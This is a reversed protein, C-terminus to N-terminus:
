PPLLINIKHTSGTIIIKKSIPYKNKDISKVTPPYSSLGCVGYMNAATATSGERGYDFYGISAYLAYLWSNAKCQTTLIRGSALPSSPM